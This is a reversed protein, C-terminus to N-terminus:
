LFGKQGPEMRKRERRRGLRSVSMKLNVKGIRLQNRGENEEDTGGKVQRGRIISEGKRRCIPRGLETIWESGRQLKFSFCHLGFLSPPLRGHLSVCLRASGLRAIVTTSTTKCAWNEMRIRYCVFWKLNHLGHAISLNRPRYCNTLLTPTFWSKQTSINSMDKIVEPYIWGGGWFIKGQKVKKLRKEGFCFINIKSEWFIFHVCHYYQNLTKDLWM